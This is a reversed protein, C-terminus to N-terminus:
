TLERMELLPFPRGDRDVASCGVVAFGCDLYSRVADTNAENAEVTLPSGKL